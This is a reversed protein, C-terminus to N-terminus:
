FAYLAPLVTLTTLLTRSWSDAEQDPVLRSQSVIQAVVATAGIQDVRAWDAPVRDCGCVTCDYSPAQGGRDDATAVKKPCKARLQVKRPVRPATDNGLLKSHKRMVCREHPIDPARTHITLRFCCL